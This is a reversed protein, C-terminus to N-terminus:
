SLLQDKYKEVELSTETNGLVEQWVNKDREYTKLM